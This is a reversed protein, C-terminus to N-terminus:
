ITNSRRTLIMLSYGGVFKSAFKKNVVFLIKRFVNILNQKFSKIEFVPPTYTKDIVTFGADELVHLIFDETFQHIHGVRQKSEILMKERFLSWVSMDLPIHFITHNSINKIAQLFSFYNELHELVDIVLLLDYRHQLPNAQIERQEFHINPSEKTKAIIIADHSIDFGFFTSQKWQQALEVLIEGSGCGAECVTKFSLNNKEALKIIERAKFAADEEHWRPNNKLYTADNYIDSM